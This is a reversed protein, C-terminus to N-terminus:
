KTWKSTNNVRNNRPSFLKKSRRQIKAKIQKELTSNLLKNPLSPNYSVTKTWLLNLCAWRLLNSNDLAAPICRHSDMDEWSCQIQHCWRAWIHHHSAEQTWCKNNCWRCRCNSHQRQRLQQKPRNCRSLHVRQSLAQNTSGQCSRRWKIVM